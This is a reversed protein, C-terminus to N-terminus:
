VGPSPRVSIARLTQAVRFDDIVGLDHVSIIGVLVGDDTMVLVRSKHREGMLELARGVNDSPRCAIVDRTMIDAIRTESATRDEAALRVTIDRDTLVGVLHDHPDCIPLFGVDADAMRRATVHVTEYDRCFEVPTRMIDQCRM